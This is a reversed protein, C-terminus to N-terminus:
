DNRPNILIFIILIIIKFPKPAPHPPDQLHPLPHSPAHPILVRPLNRLTSNGVKQPTQSRLNKRGAKSFSSSFTLTCHYLLKPSISTQAQTTLPYCSLNDNHVLNTAGIAAINPLLSPFCM